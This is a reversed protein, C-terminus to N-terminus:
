EEVGFHQKIEEAANYCSFEDEQYFDKVKSACEKVILLAFLRRDFYDTTVNGRGDFYSTHTTTCQKILHEIRTNM